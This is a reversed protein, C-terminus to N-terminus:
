IGLQKLLVKLESKNKITAQLLIPTNSILNSGDYKKIYLSVKNNRYLLTYNYSGKRETNYFNFEKDLIFGLSEIDEKDLHKVRFSSEKTAKIIDKEFGTLTDFKLLKPWEGKSYGWSTEIECEFGIYFENITPKYYKNIQTDKKLM